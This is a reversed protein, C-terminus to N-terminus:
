SMCLSGVQDGVSDLLGSVADDLDTADVGGLLHGLGDRAGSVHRVDRAATPGFAGPGIQQQVQSDHTM